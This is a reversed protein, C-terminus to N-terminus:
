KGIKAKIDRIIQGWTPLVSIIGQKKLKSLSEEVREIYPCDKEGLVTVYMADRDWGKLGFESGSKYKLSGSNYACRVSDFFLDRAFGGDQKGRDIIARFENGENVKYIDNEKYNQIEIRAKKKDIKHLKPTLRQYFCDFISNNKVVFFLYLPIDFGFWYNVTKDKIEWSPVNSKFKFTELGNMGKNRGLSELKIDDKNSSKVQLGFLIRTPSEGILWECLYDIGIDKYGAIKHMLCHKSMIFELFAEGRNGIKFSEPVKPLHTGLNNM